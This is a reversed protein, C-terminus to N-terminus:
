REDEVSAALLPRLRNALELAVAEGHSAVLGTARGLMQEAFHRTLERVQGDELRSATDIVGFDFVGRLISNPHVNVFNPGIGGPLAVALQIAIPNPQHEGIFFCRDEGRADAGTTLEIEIGNDALRELSAFNTAILGRVLSMIADHSADGDSQARVYQAIAVNQPTGHVSMTRPQGYNRRHLAIDQQFRLAAADRVSKISELAGVQPATGVSLGLVSLTEEPSIGDQFLSGERAVDLRARIEAAVPAGHFGIEVNENALSRLIDFYDRSVLALRSQTTMILFHAPVDNESHLIAVILGGLIDKPHVDYRFVVTPSFPFAEVQHAAFHSVAGGQERIRAFFHRFSDRYVAVLPELYARRTAVDMRALREMLYAQTRLNYHGSSIDSVERPSMRPVPAPPGRRSSALGSRLLAPSLADAIEMVQRLPASRLREDYNLLACNMGRETCTVRFAISEPDDPGGPLGALARLPGPFGQVRAKAAVTRLVIDHPGVPADQPVIRLAGAPRNGGAPQLRLCSGVRRSLAEGLLARWAAPLLALADIAPDFIVTTCRESIPQAETILPPEELTLREFSAFAGSEGAVHWFSCAPPYRHLLWREFPDVRAPALHRAAFDLMARLVGPMAPACTGYDHRRRSDHLALSFRTGRPVDDFRFAGNGDLPAAEVRGLDDRLLAVVGARAAAFGGTVSVLGAPGPNM